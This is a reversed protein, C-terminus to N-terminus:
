VVCRAASAPTRRRDRRRPPGPLGRRRRRDHGQPRHRRGPVARLLEPLRQRQDHDPHRLGAAAARARRLPRDRAGQDRRDRAQLVGPRHVGDHRPPVGVPRGAPRAGRAGRRAADVEADPVDLIVMKQEVTAAVRGSGHREALDAIATLETGSSRGTRFAFGVYNRGDKQKRVGVHDRESDVAAIPAPGDELKRGLYEESELVERFKEAGWDAVLFKLRARNRSRRYGYDRFIRTVGAWM